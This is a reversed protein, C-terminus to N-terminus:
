DCIQDAIQRLKEAEPALNTLLLGNSDRLLLTIEKVEANEMRYAAYARTPIDAPSESSRLEGSAALNILSEWSSDVPFPKETVLEGDQNRLRIIASDAYIECTRAFAYEPPAYGSDDYRFM